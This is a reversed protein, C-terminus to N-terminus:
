DEPEALHRYTQLEPAERKRGWARARDSPCVRDYPCIRCNEFGTNTAAGPRAPFLGQGIGGVIVTLADRFSALAEDTMSYGHRQYNWQERIFWYYGEAPREGFRQQAALAYVPLQLLKGRQVVDIKLRTYPGPSGSKYDLVLLRSGDPARDM